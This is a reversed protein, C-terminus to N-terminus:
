REGVTEIRDDEAGARRPQHAGGLGALAAAADQQDVMGALGALFDQDRAAPAAVEGVEVGRGVAEEGGVRM